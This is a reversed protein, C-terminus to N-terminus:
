WVKRVRGREGCKEQEKKKEVSKDTMEEVVSKEDDCKEQGDSVM